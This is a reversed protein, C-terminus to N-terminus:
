RRGMMAPWGWTARTETGTQARDRRSPTNKFLPGDCSDFAPESRWHGPVVLPQWGDDDLDPRPFSRRLDEDAEAAMWLGGLDLDAVGTAPPGTDTV